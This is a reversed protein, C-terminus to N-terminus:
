STSPSPPGRVPHTRSRTSFVPTSTDSRIGTPSGAFAAEFTLDNAIAPSTVAAFPCMDMATTSAPDSSHQHHHASPGSLDGILQALIPHQGPCLVFPTGDAIAGPMYGVPAFARIAFCLVALRALRHFATSRQRRTMIGTRVEQRNGFRLTRAENTVSVRFRAPEVTKRACPHLLTTGARPVVCTFRSGHDMGTESHTRYRGPKPQRNREVSHLWVPLREPTLNRVTGANGPAPCRYSPLLRWRLM